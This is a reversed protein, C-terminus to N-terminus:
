ILKNKHQGIKMEAFARCFAAEPDINGPFRTRDFKEWQQRLEKCTEKVEIESLDVQLIIRLVIPLTITELEGTDEDSNDKLRSLWNTAINLADVAKQKRDEPTGELLGIAEWKEKSYNEM